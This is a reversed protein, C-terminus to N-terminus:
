LLLCEQKRQKKSETDAQLAAGGRKKKRSSVPSLAILLFIFALIREPM